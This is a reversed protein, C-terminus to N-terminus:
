KNLFDKVKPYTIVKYLFLIGGLINLGMGAILWLDGGPSHMIKMFAGIGIICCGIALLVLAYKAKMDSNVSIEKSDM